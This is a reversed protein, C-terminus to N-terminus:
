KTDVKFIENNFVVVGNQIYDEVVKDFTKYNPKFIVSHDLKSVDDWLYELVKHAFSIAKAKKDADSLTNDRVLLDSKKVFFAGVQKDENVQLDDLKNQIQNNIADVFVGWTCDGMGPGLLEAIDNGDFSNPIREKDWRRTFATDLTYVNQDSTNMTAFINMNGPIKINEFDYHTPAENTGFNFSNLFDIIGVNKIGYESVGNDDRDLLQFIDGFIAPANGRNIEEIVLAVKKAPNRIAQILALTFPGPNFVYEVIDKEDDKGKVIKPLIQGVFDTNSYDQYFTTRIVNEEAYDGEYKQNKPNKGLIKHEIHYSKGCGPVGYFIKNTPITDCLNQYVYKGKHGSKNKKILEVVISDDGICDGNYDYIDYKLEARKLVLLYQDHFKGTMMRWQNLLYYINEPLCDDVIIYEATKWSASSRNNVQQTDFNAFSVTAFSGKQTRGKDDFCGAEKLTKILQKTDM